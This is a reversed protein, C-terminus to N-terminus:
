ASQNQVMDPIGFFDNFTLKRLRGPLKNDDGVGKGGIYTIGAAAAALALSTSRINTVATKLNINNAAAALQDFKKMVDIEPKRNDILDLTVGFLNANGYPQLNRVEMGVKCTIARIRSHLLSTFEAIRMSPIGVPLGDIELIFFRRIQPPIRDLAELYIRRTEARSLTEHHVSLNCAFLMNHEIAKAMTKGAAQITAIDLDVICEIEDSTGLVDYGEIIYGASVRRIPICHYNTIRQNYVNWLPRYIFSIPALQPVVINSADLGDDEILISGQKKTAVPKKRAANAKAADKAGNPCLHAADHASTLVEALTLERFLLEGDVQEVATKVSITELDPSGLIFQHVESAVKGVLMQAAEHSLNAFVILFQDGDYRFFTDQSGLHATLRNEAFNMVREQVAEWRDGLTEKVTDFGVMHIRGAEVLKSKAIINTLKSKVSDMQSMPSKPM